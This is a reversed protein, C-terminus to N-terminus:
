MTCLERFFALLLQATLHKLIQHKSKSGRLLWCQTPIKWGMLGLYQGSCQLESPVLVTKCPSPLTDLRELSNWSRTCIFVATQVPPPWAYLYAWGYARQEVVGVELRLRRHRSCLTVLQEWGCQRHEGPVRQLICILVSLSSLEM